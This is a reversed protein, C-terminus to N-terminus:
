YTLKIVIYAVVVICLERFDVILVDFVVVLVTLSRTGSVGFDVDADNFFRIELRVFLLLADHVNDRCEQMSCRLDDDANRDSRNGVTDKRRLDALQPRAIQRSEEHEAGLDGTLKHQSPENRPRVDFCHFLQRRLHM